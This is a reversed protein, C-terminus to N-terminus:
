CLHYQIQKKDQTYGGNGSSCLLHLLFNYSLIIQKIRLNGQWGKEKQYM